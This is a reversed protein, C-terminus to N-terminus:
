PTIGWKTYLYNKVSILDSSSLERNYVLFDGCFGNLSQTTVYSSGNKWAGITLEDTPDVAGHGGAASIENRFGTLAGAGNTIMGVVSPIVGVPM